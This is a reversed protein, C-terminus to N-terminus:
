FERMTGMVFNYRWGVAGELGRLWKVLPLTVEAGSASEEAVNLERGFLSNKFNELGSAIRAGGCLSLKNKTLLV